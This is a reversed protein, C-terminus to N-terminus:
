LAGAMSQKGGTRNRARRGKPTWRAIHPQSRLFDALNLTISNLAPTTKAALPLIQWARNYSDTSVCAAEELIVHANTGGIGFSNSLDAGGFVAIPKDYRYPDYGADELTEWACELFIRQQPDLIQVDRPNLGFFPADFRDIEDLVIGRSVFNPLSRNAPDSGETRLEEDSFERVSEHGVCLNQWFAAPNRADPFRCSMGIIAVVDENAQSPETQDNM